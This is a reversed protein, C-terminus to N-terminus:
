LPQNYNKNKTTKLNDTKQDVPYNIKQTKLEEAKLIWNKASAKWDNMKIRGGIKWGNAKYHNYFKQAEIDPWNEKKFFKLVELENKPLELKYSKKIKKNHKNSPVMAQGLNPVTLDLVQGSTTGFILMKIQSGKFPNHSPYYVLYKYHELEKVCRHYTSKSGIKSLKM